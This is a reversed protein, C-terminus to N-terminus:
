SSNTLDANVDASCLPFSVTFITGNSSTIVDIKAQHRQAIRFCLPLGLGTKGEKNTVFPTGLKDLMAPSIGSGTDQVSLIVKNQEIGTKITVVGSKDMAELGNHVLNLVMQRIEKIDLCIDPIEALEMVIIHGRHSADAELLPLLSELLQNLSGQEICVAKDKALSLFHRIIENAKDLEAIMDNIQRHYKSLEAKQQFFQLYGRVTTMPNRVEHGIGVAMEGVMDLLGLRILDAELRQKETVDTAVCLVSVVEKHLTCEPIFRIDYLRQSPGAWAALNETEGTAFASAMGNMWPLYNDAPSKSEDENSDAVLMEPMDTDLLAAQNAYIRCFSRDYRSICDPLNEVLRRYHQEHQLLQSTRRGVQLELIANTEELATQVKQRETIEIKLAANVTEIEQVTKILHSEHQRILSISSQVKQSMRVFAACLNVLERPVDKLYQSKGVLAYNEEAVLESQSILWSIPQTIRGSVIQLLHLIILLLCLIMGAIPLQQQYIPLLIETENVTGVLTWDREPLYRYAGLVKEGLYNMGSGSGDSGFNAASFIDATQNLKMRLAGKALGKDILTSPDRPQAILVGESNILVIEGTKSIWNDRLIAELATTRVSGLILGQFIGERFIPASFNILPLSSNRGVVIDSIFENGAAAAEFYPQGVVSPFRINQNLTSIRLMGQHDIYSLFNFETYEAQLAYLTAEIQRLDQSSFSEIRSIARIEGARDQIWDEIIQKQFDVRQSILELKAQKATMIQEYTYISMILLGPVAIIIVTWLRLQRLLPQNIM